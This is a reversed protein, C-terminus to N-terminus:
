WDGEDCEPAMEQTMTISTYEMIIDLSLILHMKCIAYTFHL